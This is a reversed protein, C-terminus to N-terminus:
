GTNLACHPKATEMDSRPPPQYTIPVPACLEQSKGEANQKHLSLGPEWWADKRTQFFHYHVYADERLSMSHKKPNLFVSRVKFTLPLQLIKSIRTQKLYGKTNQHTQERNSAAQHM